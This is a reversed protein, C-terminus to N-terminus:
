TSFELSGVLFSNSSIFSILLTSLYLILIYVDIRNRYLLLLCVSVIKKVGNVDAVFYQYMSYCPGQFM